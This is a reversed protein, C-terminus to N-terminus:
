DDEELIKKKEKEFEEQTLIGQDLLAKLEILREVKSKPRNAQQLEWEPHDPSVPQLQYHYNSDYELAWIWPILFFFGGIVAGVHVDDDKVIEANLTEYGLMEMRILTNSFSAKADRHKYPTKGVMNGDLYLKAGSPSSTIMTKSSCSILTFSILLISLLRATRQM